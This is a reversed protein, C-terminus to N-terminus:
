SWISLNVDFSQNVLHILSSPTKEVAEENLAM